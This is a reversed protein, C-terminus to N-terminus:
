KVKYEKEAAYKTKINQWEDVFHFSHIRVHSLASVNIYNFMLKKGRWRRCYKVSGAPWSFWDLDLQMVHELYHNIVWFRASKNDSM